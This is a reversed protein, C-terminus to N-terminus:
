AVISALRPQQTQVCLQRTWTSHLSLWASLNRITDSSAKAAVDETNMVGWQQAWKTVRSLVYQDSLSPDSWCLLAMSTPKQLADLSTDWVCDYQSLYNSRGIIDAM